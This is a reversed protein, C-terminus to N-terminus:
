AKKRLATVERGEEVRQALAAAVLLFVGGMVVAALRSNGLLHIMVWGLVASSVIEPLVIFFNFVGMYLGVREPPLSGGLMAYPMALTSAWAIGVGVMSAMLWWPGPAVAVSMLGLAGATLCVGHTRKRGLRAAMPELFKSFLFCVASYAGFCLGAWQVGEAYRPSQPDVAGFVHHAVAVSFYLWMCFLGLWTCIQVPALQRMVRPMAGIARVM